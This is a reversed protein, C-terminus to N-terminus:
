GVGPIANAMSAETVKHDNVDVWLTQAAVLRWTMHCAYDWYTAQECRAQTDAHQEIWLATQAATLKKSGGCGAAVVVLIAVATASAVKATHRGVEDM